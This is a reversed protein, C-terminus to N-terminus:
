FEDWPTLLGFERDLVPKGDKAARLDAEAEALKRLKQKEERLRSDFQQLNARSEDEHSNAKDLAAQAAKLGRQWQSLEIATPFLEPRPASDEWAVLEVRCQSCKQQARRLFAQLPPLEVTELREVAELQERALAKALKWREDLSAIKREKHRAILACAKTELECLAALLQAGDAKLDEDQQVKALRGIFEGFPIGRASFDVVPVKPAPSEEPLEPESSVPAEEEAVFRALPAGDGGDSRLHVVGSFQPQSFGSEFSSSPSRHRFM